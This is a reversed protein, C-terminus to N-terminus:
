GSALRMAAAAMVKKYYVKEKKELGAAGAVYLLFSSSRSSCLWVSVGRERYTCLFIERSLPIRKYNNSPPEIFHPGCVEREL